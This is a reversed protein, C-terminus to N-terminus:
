VEKNEKKHTMTKGKDNNEKHMIKIKWHAEKQLTKRNNKIKAINETENNKQKM